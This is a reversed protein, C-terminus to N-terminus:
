SFANLHIFKAAVRGTPAKISGGDVIAEDSFTMSRSDSIPQKQFVSGGSTTRLARTELRCPMQRLFLYCSPLQTSDEPHHYWAPSPQYQAINWLIRRLPLVPCPMSSLCQILSFSIIQWKTAEINQTGVLQIPQHRLLWVITQRSERGKIMFFASSKRDSDMAGRAALM